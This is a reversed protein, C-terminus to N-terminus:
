LNKRNWRVMQMGTLTAFSYRGGGKRIVQRAFKSCYQLNPCGYRVYGKQSVEDIYSLMRELNLDHYEAAEVRGYSKFLPKAALHVLLSDLNMLVGDQFRAKISIILEPVTEPTRVVGYNEPREHTLDRREDYRGFDVYEVDGTNPNIIMLGAHGVRLHDNRDFDFFRAIGNWINPITPIPIDKEPFAIVVAVADKTSMRVSDPPDAVLMNGHMFMAAILLASLKM